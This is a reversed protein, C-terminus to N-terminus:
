EAPSVPALFPCFELAERTLMGKEGGSHYLTLPYSFVPESKADKQARILLRRAPSNERPHAPLIARTGFGAGALATLTEALLRPPIILCFFGRYVAFERAALCFDNLSNLGFFAADRASSLPRAGESDKYWPPNAMIIRTRRLAKRPWTAADKADARAFAVRGELGLAKANQRAAAISAFDRELGLCQSYRDLLAYAFLAAGCGCGWEAALIEEDAARKERRIAACKAAFAGLLLADLGFRYAGEAQALGRPFNAEPTDAM